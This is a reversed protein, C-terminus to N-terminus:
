AVVMKMGYVAIFERVTTLGKYDFCPECYQTTTYDIKDAVINECFVCIIADLNTNMQNGNRNTNLLM